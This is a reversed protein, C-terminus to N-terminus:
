DAYWLYCRLPLKFRKLKAGWGNPQAFRLKKERPFETEANNSQITRPRHLGDLDVHTSAMAVGADCSVWSDLWPAEHSILCAACLRCAGSQWTVAGAGAAAELSVTDSCWQMKMLMQGAGEGGRLHQTSSKFFPQLNALSQKIRDKIQFIIDM